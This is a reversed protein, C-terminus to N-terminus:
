ESALPRYSLFVDAMEGRSGDAWEFSAVLPLSNGHEDRAQTGEVRHPRVTLAVIGVEALPRIELPQSTGDRDGDQWVALVSFGADNADVRGDGDDDLAALPEFGNAHSGGGTFNGFLETAGAVSGDRDRDIVLFADDAGEPWATQVPRGDDLLDFAIGGDVASLAIGDGLLDLVIPSGQCIGDFQLQERAYNDWTRLLLTECLDNHEDGIGSRSQLRAAAVETASQCANFAAERDGDASRGLSPEGQPHEPLVACSLDYATAVSDLFGNVDDCFQQRLAPRACDSFSETWSPQPQATSPPAMEDPLANSSPNYRFILRAWSEDPWVADVHVRRANPSGDVQEFVIIVGGFHGTPSADYGRSNEMHLHTIEDEDISLYARLSPLNEEAEDSREDASENITVRTTWGGTATVEEIDELGFSEGDLEAELQEFVIGVPGEYISRERMEEPHETDHPREADDPRPLDSPTDREEPVRHEAILKGYLDYIRVIGYGNRDRLREPILPVARCSLPTEFATCDTVLGGRSDLSVVMRDIAAPNPYTARYSPDGLAGELVFGDAGGWLEISLASGFSSPVESSCACLAILTALGVHHITALRAQM